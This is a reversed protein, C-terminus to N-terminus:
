AVKIKSPPLCKEPSYSTNKSLNFSLLNKIRRLLIDIQSPKILYENAGAALGAEQVEPADQASWILIPMRHGQYRFLRCLSIGDLEPLIIDLIVLDYDSSSMLEWASSGSSAVEVAYNQEALIEQLLESTCYDDEILLLKM